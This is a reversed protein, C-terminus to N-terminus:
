WHQYNMNNKWIFLYVNFPIPSIVRDSDFNAREIFLVMRSIDFATYILYVFSWYFSAFSM